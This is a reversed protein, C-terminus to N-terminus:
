KEVRFWVDQKNNTNDFINEIINPKELKIIHYKKEFYELSRGEDLCKFFLEKTKNQLRSYKLNVKFVSKNIYLNSSKM